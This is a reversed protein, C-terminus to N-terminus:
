VEAPAAALKSPLIVVFEPAISVTLNQGQHVEGTQSQLAKAVLPWDNPGRLLIRRFEGLFHEREVTTAVRNASLGVPAGTNLVLSEPRIAVSVPSGGPLASSPARGVLRGIPTRVVAEGTSDIGELHGQLLNTEGLYQAVFTDAPNNYIRSPVDIQVIRGLDIVAIRDATALADRPEDSLVLTSTELEAHLRLIEERLEERARGEIGNLPQDLILLLPEVALARALSVRRRQPPNLAAPRLSALSEIRTLAMVEAVRRRRERRAVKRVELGYAVHQAVTLHPWLADMKPVLGVRRERGPVDRMSRGDFYIEGDDLDELGAVLRALMTKGSGPPGLLYTLEGPVVEMSAHDVVAIRDFRKVLGDLVVRIM